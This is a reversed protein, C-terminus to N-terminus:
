IDPTYNDTSTETTEESSTSTEEESLDDQVTLPNILEEKKTSAPKTIKHVSPIILKFTFKQASKPKEM